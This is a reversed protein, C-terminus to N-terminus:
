ACGLIRASIGTISAAALGELGPVPDSIEITREPWKTTRRNEAVEEATLAVGGVRKKM